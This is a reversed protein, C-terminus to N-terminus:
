LCGCCAWKLGEILVMLGSGLSAVILWRKTMSEQRQMRRKDSLAEAAAQCYGGRDLHVMGQFSISYVEGPFIDIFGDKHLKIIIAEPISKNPFSVEEIKTLLESATIKENEKFVKLAKDLVYNPNLIRYDEKKEM